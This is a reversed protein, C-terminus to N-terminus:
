KGDNPALGPAVDPKWFRLKVQGKQIDAYSFQQTSRALKNECNEALGSLWARVAEKDRANIVELLPIWNNWTGLGWIRQGGASLEQEFCLHYHGLIYTKIQPNQLLMRRAASLMRIESHKLKGAKKRQIYGLLAAIASLRYGKAYSPTPSGTKEPANFAETRPLNFSQATGQPIHKIINDGYFPRTIKLKRWNWMKMFQFLLFSPFGLFATKLYLLPDIVALLVYINDEYCRSNYLYPYKRIIEVLRRRLGTRVFNMLAKPRTIKYLPEYGHGHEILIAGEEGKILLRKKFRVMNRCDEAFLEKRMIERLLPFAIPYDHNGHIFIVHNGNRCWKNLEAFIAANEQLMEKSQRRIAEEQSSWDSCHLAYFDFFDGNFVLTQPQFSEDEGNLYRLFSIFFPLATNRLQEASGTVHVDAIVFYRM